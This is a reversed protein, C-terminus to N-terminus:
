FPLGRFPGEPLPGTAQNRASEFLKCTVANVQPDTAEIQKIAADVLEIPKVENKRVLECLGMADYTVYDQLKM